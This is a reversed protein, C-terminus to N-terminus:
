PEFGNHERIADRMRRLGKEVLARPMALNLRVYGEADDVFFADGGELIVGAKKAFFDPLDEVDHLCARLDVWALYTAEPVTFVAEPLEDRLFRELLAFNGDLYAKLQRLWEGGREYAAQHAALSLPNLMGCAKARAKFRKREDENRILVASLLLGAVNFTKSASMCTVLRDYDPLIKGMPTHRLGSRLLDCHIEDSVIWLGHGCAIRAIERLEEEMWVRGTPNHPNCLLLLKTDPDAARREFDAFDIVFRGTGDRHLPSRLLEVGSYECAALFQSYAPTMTLVKGGQPVLDEVLQKLAYVVGPTCCLEEERFDWDYLARCWRRLAHVYGGDYMGTYGFIRRDVRARIADVIEPAVAFEMDAVWMRVFDDEGWPLTEGPELRLIGGRFGDTNVANTGRRDVIEDFNYM